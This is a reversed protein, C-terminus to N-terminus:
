NEKRRFLKNEHFRSYTSLSHMGPHSKEDNKFAVSYADVGASQMDANHVLIAEQTMPKLGGVEGHSSLVIHLLETIDCREEPKTCINITNLLLAGDMVHGVLNGRKTRHTKPFPEYENIKGLDHTLAGAIVLDMNVPIKYDYAHKESVSATAVAIGTVELTHALLAGNYNHHM